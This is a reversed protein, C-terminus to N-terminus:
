VGYVSIIKLQNNEDISIQFNQGHYGLFLEINHANRQTSFTSDDAIDQYLKIMSDTDCKTIYTADTDSTRYKLATKPPLPLYIIEGDTTYRHTSLSNFYVNVSDHFPDVTLYISILVAMTCLFTLSGMVLKKSKRKIAVCLLVFLLAIILM